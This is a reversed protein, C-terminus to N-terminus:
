ISDIKEIEEPTRIDVFATYGEGELQQKQFGVNKNARQCLVVKGQERLTNCRQQLRAVDGSAFSKGYLVAVKERGGEAKYKKDLLAGVLREFGISFGCACTPTGTFNGIMNDYRGGGAISSGKFDESKIEFITGTYYGMGRVLTPDFALHFKGDSMCAVNDFIQRINDAVGPEMADGFAAEAYAFRDEAALFGHFIDMYADVVGADCGSELLEKKVGDEGIKDYKDLIIFAKGYEEEAFGAKRAMGKLIRRDNVMVTNGKVGVSDLFLSTVYILESEATNSADGLIDIDCQTFQRFRGKQPRDARWVSGVQLSKFPMPLSGANNAFYRSLPVTLDYRMGSDALSGPDSLDMSENLKEGRKLVKFILKENEGGQKNTLNEIREMCPTEIQTYGFSAYMYKLKSLLYERIEMEAPLIDRMGKVTEKIFM